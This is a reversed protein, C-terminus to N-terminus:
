AKTSAPKHVGSSEYYTLFEIQSLEKMTMEPTLADQHRCTWIEVEVEERLLEQEAERVAEENELVFGSRKELDSFIPERPGEGEGAKETAQQYDQMRQQCTVPKGDEHLAYKEALAHFDSKAAEFAAGFARLTRSIAKVLEESIKQPRVAELFNKRAIIEQNMMTVTKKRLM